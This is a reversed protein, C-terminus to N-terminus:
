EIQNQDAKPCICNGLCRNTVGAIINALFNNKYNTCQLQQLHVLEHGLVTAKPTPHVDMLPLQTNQRPPSPNHPSKDSLASKNNDKSQFLPIIIQSDCNNEYLM